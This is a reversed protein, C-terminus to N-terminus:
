FPAGILLRLDTRLRERATRVQTRPGGGPFSQAAWSIYLGMYNTMDQLVSVPAVVGGAPMSNTMFTHVVPQFQGYTGLGGSPQVPALDVRWVGDQYIWNSDQLLVQSTQPVPGGGTTQFFNLVTTALVYGDITANFVLSNTFSNDLAFTASVPDVNKLILHNFAAALNIRKVRLDSGTGKWGTWAPTAPITNNPITWLAEFDSATLSSIDTPLPYSLSSLIIFRPNSLPGLSGTVPQIFPLTAATTAGIRMSPDILFARANNAYGNTVESTESGINSAIFAGWENTGPIYRQRM